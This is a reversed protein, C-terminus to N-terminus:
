VYAGFIIRVHDVFPFFFCYIFVYEVVRLYELLNAKCLAFSRVLIAGDLNWIWVWAM